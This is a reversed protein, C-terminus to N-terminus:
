RKYRCNFMRSVNLVICCLAGHPTSRGSGVGYIETVPDIWYQDTLLQLAACVVPGGLSGDITAVHVYPPLVPSVPDVKTVSIPKPPNTNAALNNPFTDMSENLLLVLLMPLQYVM